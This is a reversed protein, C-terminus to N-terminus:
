NVLVFSFQQFYGPPLGGSSTGKTELEASLEIYRFKKREYAMEVAEEWPVTLEVFYVVRQTESWLM